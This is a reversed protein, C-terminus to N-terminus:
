QILLCQVFNYLSIGLMYYEHSTRSDNISQHIQITCYFTDRMLWVRRSLRIEACASTFKERNRSTVNIRLARKSQARHWHHNRNSNGHKKTMKRRWTESAYNNSRQFRQTLEIKWTVNFKKLLVMSRICSLVMYGELQIQNIHGIIFEGPRTDVSNRVPISPNLQMVPAAGM